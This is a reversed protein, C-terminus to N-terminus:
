PTHVGAFVFAIFSSFFCGMPILYFTALLLSEDLDLLIEVGLVLLGMLFLLIGVKTYKSVKSFAVM